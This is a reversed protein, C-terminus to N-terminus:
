WGYSQKTTAGNGGGVNQSGIPPRSGRLPPYEEM